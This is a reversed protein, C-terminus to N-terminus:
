RGWLAIWVWLEPHFPLFATAGPAFSSTQEAAITAASQGDQVFDPAIEALMVWAPTFWGAEVVLSRLVRRGQDEDGSLLSVGARALELGYDDDKALAFAELADLADQPRSAVTAAYALEVQVRQDAWDRALYDQYSILAQAADGTLAALRARLLVFERADPDLVFAEALEAAALEFEGLAIRMWVAEGLLWPDGWGTTYAQQFDRRASEFRGLERHLTGRAYYADSRGQHIEVARNLVAFAANPDDKRILDAYALSPGLGDPDIRYADLIDQEGGEDGLEWRRLEARELYAPILAPDVDLATSYDSLAEDLRGLSRHIRARGLWALAFAPDVEIAKSFEALGREPDDWAELGRVYFSAASPGDPLFRTETDAPSEAVADDPTPGPPASACAALMLSVVFLSAASFIRM